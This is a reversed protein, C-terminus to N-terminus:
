HNQNSVTQTSDFNLHNNGYTYLQHTNAVPNNTVLRTIFEEAHQPLINKYWNGNPMEIVIPAENCRGNCLTKTTHVADTLGLNKVTNRIIETTEEAGLKCCSGGNCIFLHIKIDTLNKIAM